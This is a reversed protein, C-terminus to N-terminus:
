FDLGISTFGNIKITKGFHDYDPNLNGGIYFVYKKHDPEYIVIKYDLYLSTRLSQTSSKSFETEGRFKLFDKEYAYSFGLCVVNFYYILILLFKM